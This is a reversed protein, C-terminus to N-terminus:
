CSEAGGTAIISECLWILDEYYERESKMTDDPHRTTAQQWAEHACSSHEHCLRNWTQIYTKQM